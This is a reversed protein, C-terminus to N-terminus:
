SETGTEIKFQTQDILKYYAAAWGASIIPVAVFIGFFLAVIGLFVVLFAIVGYALVDWKAGYTAQDSLKLANIPGKGELIFFPFLSFKCAWYIGPIILLIFGLTVILTYLIQAAIYSLGKSWSNFFDGITATGNKVMKMSFAFLGLGSLASLIYTLVQSLIYIGKHAHFDSNAAHISSTKTFLFPLMGLQPIIFILLMVVIWLWFHSKFREWGIKVVEGISFGKNIM